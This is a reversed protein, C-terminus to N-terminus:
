PKAIRYMARELAERRERSPPMRGEKQIRLREKEANAWTQAFDDSTTLGRDKMYQRHRKRSGIDTGDPAKTNEYFRGTMVTANVALKPAEYGGLDVESVFGNASAKPHRPRYVYRM